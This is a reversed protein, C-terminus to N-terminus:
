EFRDCKSKLAWLNNGFLSTPNSLSQLWVTTQTGCPQSVEALVENLLAPNQKIESLLTRFYSPLLDQKSFEDIESSLFLPNNIDNGVELYTQSQWNNEETSTALKVCQLITFILLASSTIQSHKM